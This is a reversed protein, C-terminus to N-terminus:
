PQNEETARLEDTEGDEVKKETKGSPKGTNRKKVLYCALPVGVLVLVVLIIIIVIVGVGLGGATAETCCAVTGKPITGNVSSSGLKNTATCTFSIPNMQKKLPDIKWTIRNDGETQESNELSKLDPKSAVLTMQCAPSGTAVCEVEVYADGPSSQSSRIQIPTTLTAKCGGEVKFSHSTKKISIGKAECTYTGADDYKVSSIRLVKGNGLESDSGEKKWTYSVRDNTEVDCEFQVSDGANASSAGFISPTYMYKVTLDKQAKAEDSDDSNSASCEYPGADKETATFEYLESTVDEQLGNPLLLSVVASPNGNATCSIRVREGVKAVQPEIAIEVSDTMYQVFVQDTGEESENPLEKDTIFSSCKFSKGDLEKSPALRLTASANVTADDNTGDLMIETVNWYTEGDTTSFTFRHPQPYAGVAVCKVVIEQEEQEPEETPPLTTPNTSPEMTSTTPNGYFDTDDGDEGGYYETPQETGSATDTNEPKPRIDVNLNVGVISVSPEFYVSVDFDTRKAVREYELDCAYQASDDIEINELMAMARGEAFHESITSFRETIHEPASDYTFSNNEGMASKALKVSIDDKTLWWFVSVSEADEPIPKFVCIFTANSNGPFYETGTYDLTAQQQCLCSQGFLLIGLIALRIDM